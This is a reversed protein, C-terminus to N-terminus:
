ATADATFNGTVHMAAEGKGAQLPIALHHPGDMGPHMQLPFQLQVSGGAPVALQQGAQTLEGDAYVPGPCCGELVQPQGVTVTVDQGTPNDIRWSPVYTIGLAVDGMAIETGSVALGGFTVEGTPEGPATRALGGMPNPLSADFRSPEDPALVAGLIAFLALGGILVAITYATGMVRRETRAADTADTRPM